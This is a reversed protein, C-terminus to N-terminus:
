LNASPFRVSYLSSSCKALNKVINFYESLILFCSLFRSIHVKVFFFIHSTCLHEYWQSGCFVCECKSLFFDLKGMTQHTEATLACESNIVSEERQMEPM